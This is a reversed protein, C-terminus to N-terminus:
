GAPQQLGALAQRVRTLPGRIGWREALETTAQEDAPPVPLALADLETDLPADDVARVVTRAAELYDGAEALARRKAGTLASAPDATAALLGDLGGHRALLAAGTKAGIGSVGPLGDSPDGRLVALELYSRGDPVGYREALM